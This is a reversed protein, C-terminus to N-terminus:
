CNALLSVYEYSSQSGSKLPDRNCRSTLLLGLSQKGLRQLGNIRTSWLKLFEKDGIIHPHFHELRAELYEPASLAIIGFCPNRFQVGLIELARPYRHHQFHLFDELYPNRITTPIGTTLDLHTPFPDESGELKNYISM